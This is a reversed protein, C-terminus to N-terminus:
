KMQRLESELAWVKKDLTDLKEDYASVRKGVHELVSAIQENDTNGTRINAALDLLAKGLVRSQKKIESSRQLNDGM